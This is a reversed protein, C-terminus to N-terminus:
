MSLIIIWRRSRRNALPAPPQRRPMSSGSSPLGTRADKRWRRFDACQAQHHGRGSHRKRENGGAARRHDRGSGGCGRDRAFRHNAAADGYRGGDGGSRHEGAADIRTRWSWVPSDAPQGGGLHDRRRTRCGHGVAGGHCAPWPGRGTEPLAQVVRRRDHGARRGGDGRRASLGGHNDRAVDDQGRRAIEHRRRALDRAYRPRVHAVVPVTNGDHDTATAKSAYPLGTAEEVPLADMDARLMVTPGDGNRLLGVVGTKGVGTTVEYGAARLHDAALKATRTEQMSLEPHSHVDKYLEALDPLLRELNGLAPDPSSAQSPAM